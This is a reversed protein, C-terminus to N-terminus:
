RSTPPYKKLPLKFYLDMAAKLFEAMPHEDCYNRLSREQDKTTMASLDHYQGQASELMSM